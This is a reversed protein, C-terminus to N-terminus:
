DVTDLLKFAYFHQGVIQGAGELKGLKRMYQVRVWTKSTQLSRGSGAMLWNFFRIDMGIKSWLTWKDRRPWANCKRDNGHNFITSLHAEKKFM